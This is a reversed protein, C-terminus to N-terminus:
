LSTQSYKECWRDKWMQFILLTWILKRNDKKRSLHEDILRKVFSPEFYGEKKIKNENLHELVLEKMDGCLWQAVPIGFGKKGRKIIQAPLLKKFAAKIIYKTTLRNLKYITPTRAAFEVVRHDLFPTRVELSNVMSARDVKVLIDDQLYLKMSLYLAREMTKHLGVRKLYNFIDEFTNENKIKEVVESSFLQKKERENFSGMWYFFMIEPSVGAGRLLQKLKFDFSINNHSVPLKEIIRHIIARLERPLINYYNVLKLAPYTPYGAFLEDGGDGGLVVKNKLVAFKSLLVTPIISADALPEDLCSMIEPLLKVAKTIDFLEFHSTAGLYKAIKSAYRTEDFSKERFSITFTEIQKNQEVALATVISSDIGGSLLIGVPVDSRLRIRVSDKLLSILEEIYERETQHAIIDDSIPIDWYRTTAINNTKVDYMMFYGPELKKIQKFISNPAPVYEYTLYKSLSFLDIESSITPYCLLSKIESGFIFADSTLAYFLPKEGMRDRALFLKQKNKDYICFAFMGNIKDLMGAGYEEYLHVLIETDSNTYFRHGNNELPKKLELYNYIEGNFVIWITSDENHIPQTGTELDIISLRRHGLGIRGDIFIGSGDPGRHILSDRMSLLVKDNVQKTTKLAIGCIGCM